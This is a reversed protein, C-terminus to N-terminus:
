LIPKLMTERLALTTGGFIRFIASRATYGEEMATLYLARHGLTDARQLVFQQLGSGKEKSFWFPYGEIMMSHLCAPLPRQLDLKIKANTKTLENSGDKHLSQLEPLPTNESEM